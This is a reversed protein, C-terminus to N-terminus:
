RSLRETLNPTPLEEGSLLRVEYVTIGEIVRMIYNRTESFPVAEIWYVIDEANRPHGLRAIWENARGPGANYAAAVLVLNEDYQDLLTTIYHSALRANYAPDILLQRQDYAIGLAGAMARGTAPMVQMLGLAGAGSTVVPDFESERRAISLAIATPASLNQDVLDTIPYYARMIEFGNQAARKAILVSLHVDGIGLAFDGLRAADRESLTETLHTLFREALTRQDADLLLLGAHFVESGTFSAQRWDGDDDGNILAPDTPLNGREAALQGYFSSQYAAGEAYAQAAATANGAAEHARGLWYGARGVSIPSAVATRFREFHTIATEFRDLRFACYGLLWELDAFALRNDTQTIYHNAARDYCTNFDGERMVDRALDARRTAWAAPRGLAQASASREVLLDGASDWVGSGIRWLYREFALGPDDRLTEPVAAVASDVGQRRARLAIRAQALARWEESVLPFMARASDTAGEWLLHDLRDVHHTGRDLVDGYAGRLATTEQESLTMTTWGRIVEAEAAARNGSAELARALALVGAGTRPAQPAFYAIVRGPDTGGQIVTEGRARLLPLGPWDANRSLFDEYEAFEGRSERLLRWIIIDRAIPDEISQMVRDVVDMNGTDLASFAQGLREATAGPGTQTQAIVWIPTLPALTGLLAFFIYTLTRM